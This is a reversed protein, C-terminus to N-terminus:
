LKLSNKQIEAENQRQLCIFNGDFQKLLPDFELVTHVVNILLINILLM